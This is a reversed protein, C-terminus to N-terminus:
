SSFNHILYTKNTVWRNEFWVKLCVRELHKEREPSQVKRSNYKKSKLDRTYTNYIHNFDIVGERKLYTDNSM